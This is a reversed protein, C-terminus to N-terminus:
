ESRIMTIPIAPTGIACRTNRCSRRITSDTRKRAGNQTSFAPRSRVIAHASSARSSSCTPTTAIAEATDVGSTGSRMVLLKLRVPQSAIMRNNTSACTNRSPVRMRSSRSPVIQHRDVDLEVVQQVLPSHGQGLKRLADVDREGIQRDELGALRARDTERRQLRDALDKRALRAVQQLELGIGAGALRAAACELVSFGMAEVAPEM